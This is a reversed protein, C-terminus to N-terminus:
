LQKFQINNKSTFLQFFSHSLILRGSLPPDGPTTDELHIIKERILKGDERLFALARLREDINESVLYLFTFGTPLLGKFNYGSTLGANLTESHKGDFRELLFEPNINPVLSLVLLLREEHCLELERILSTYNTQYDSTGKPSISSVPPYFLNVSYDLTKEGNANIREPHYTRKNCIDFRRQIIEDLWEFEKEIVLAVNEM